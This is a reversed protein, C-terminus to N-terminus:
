AAVGQRWLEASQAALYDAGTKGRNFALFHLRDCDRELRSLYEDRSSRGHQYAVTYFALLSSPLQRLEVRGLCLDVALNEIFQAARDSVRIEDPYTRPETSDSTARNGAQNESEAGNVAPGNGKPENM